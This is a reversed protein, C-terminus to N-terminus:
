LLAELLVLSYDQGELVEYARIAQSEEIWHQCAEEPAFFGETRLPLPCGAGVKFKPFGAGSWVWQIQGNNSSVVACNQKRDSVVTVAMAQLSVQYKDALVQLTEADFEDIRETRLSNRPILLRSAFRNVEKEDPDSGFMRGETEVEGYKRLKNLVLHGLEHAVDFRRRPAPDKENVIIAARFFENDWQVVGSWQQESHCYKIPVGLEFAIAEVDIPITKGDVLLDAFMPSTNGWEAWSEFVSSPKLVGCNEPNVPTRNERAAIPKEELRIGLQKADGFFIRRSQLRLYYPLRIDEALVQASLLKNTLLNVCWRHSDPHNKVLEVLVKGVTAPDQKFARLFGDRLWSLLYKDDDALVGSLIQWVNITDGAILIARWADRHTGYNERANVASRWAETATEKNMWPVLLWEATERHLPNVAELIEGVSRRIAQDENLRLWLLISGLSIAADDSSALLNLNESLLKSDILGPSGGARSCGELFEGWETKARQRLDLM